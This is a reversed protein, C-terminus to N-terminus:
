PRPKDLVKQAEAAVKKMGDAPTAKNLWLPDTNQGVADNFEQCRCNAPKPETFPKRGEQLAQQFEKLGIMKEQLGPDSQVDPRAGPGGGNLSVKEIGIDKATMWKAVKWADEPAKSNATVNVLDSQSHNGMVGTPGKPILAAGYKFKNGVLPILFTGTWLTNQLMAIKGGAFMNTDSGNQIQDPAPHVKHKYVLDQLWQTAKIAEDEALRTKARSEDLVDGGFSRIHIHQSGTAGALGFQGDSAKTLKTAKDLLDDYTLTMADPYKVGAADFLNKNYYIMVSQYQYTEPLAYQKGDFQGNAIAGPYYQNLDFKEGQVFPTIERYLGKNAMEPFFRSIDVVNDGITKSAHLAALKLWYENTAVMTEMKIPRTPNAATWRKAYEVFHNSLDGERCHFVLQIVGAGAPAAAAAPATTAQASTAPAQTPAAAAAAPTAGGGSAPAAGGSKAAATAETQAPPPACAALASLGAMGLGALVLSRRSYLKPM